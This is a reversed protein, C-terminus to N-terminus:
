DVRWDVWVTPVSPFETFRQPVRPHSKGLAQCPTHPLMGPASWCCRIVRAVFPQAGIGNPLPDLGLIDRSEDVTKIGLKIYATEVKSQETPDIQKVDQFAFELDAHGMRLEIEDDVLRKVWAMMPALGEELASQRATESTARNRMRVFADPPLSFSFMVVRALWEDFEDKLPAEKISTWKAGYPVMQFRRRDATNGSLLDNM